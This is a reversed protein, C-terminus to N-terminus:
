WDLPIPVAGLWAGVVTGLAAGFVEDIPVMLGAIRRWNDSDAGHIYVLPMGALISLHLSCLITEPLHTTLPAGFLILLITLLPTGAL